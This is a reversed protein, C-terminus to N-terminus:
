NHEYANALNLRALGLLRQAKALRAQLSLIQNLLGKAKIFKERILDLEKQLTKVQKLQAQTLLLEEVLSQLKILGSNFNKFTVESEM